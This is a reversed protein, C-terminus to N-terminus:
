IIHKTDDFLLTIYTINKQTYSCVNTAIAKQIDRIVDGKVTVMGNTVHLITSATVAVTTSVTIDMPGMIVNQLM